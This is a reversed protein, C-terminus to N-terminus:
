RSPPPSWSPRGTMSVISRRSFTQTATHISHANAYLTQCHEEDDPFGIDDAITKADQGIGFLHLQWGRELARGALTRLRQLTGPPDPAAPENCGDTIIGFTVNITLRHGHEHLFRTRLEDCLTLLSSLTDGVIAYLRTSGSAEYQELTPAHSAPMLQFDSLTENFFAVGVLAEVGAPLKGMQDLFGNAATLPTQRFQRMSGSRDILLLSLGLSQSRQALECAQRIIGENTSDIM